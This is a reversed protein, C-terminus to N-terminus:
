SPTPRVIPPISYPGAQPNPHSVSSPGIPPYLLPPVGATGVSVTPTALPNTLTPNPNPNLNPNPNPIPNLDAAIPFLSLDPFDNPPLASHTFPASPDEFPFLPDPFHDLSQCVRYSASLPLFVNHCRYHHVSPSLYFVRTGHKACSKRQLSSDHAVVLQRAPHIPHSPFDFPLSHLGHWASLSPNSRWPRLDDLTLEILPLLDSWRDSPFFVRCSFLVSIVYNRSTRIGREAPLSRHNNLGVYQYSILSTKFFLKLDIFTENDVFLHSLPHSLTKFFSVTSAFASVYSASTRSKLPTLHIYGRHIVM